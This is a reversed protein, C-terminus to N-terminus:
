WGGGDGGGEWDGPSREAQDEAGQSQVHHVQPAAEESGRGDSHDQRFMEQLGGPSCLAPDAHLSQQNWVGCM